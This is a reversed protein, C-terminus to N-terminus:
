MNELTRMMAVAKEYRADDNVIADAVTEDMGNKILFNRLNVRPNVAGRKGSGIDNGDIAYGAMSWTEWESRTGNRLTGNQLRVVDHAFAREMLQERTCTTYDVTVNINVTDIKVDRGPGGSVKVLRTMKDM